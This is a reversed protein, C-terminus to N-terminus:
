KRQNGVFLQIFLERSKLPKDGLHHRLVRRMLEKAERSQGPDLDRDAALNLLTAGAVSFGSGAMRAVPGREPDYGYRGGPDLPASSDVDQDLVMAYGIQELLRLEFRRLTRAVDPQTGLARLASRYHDFLQEHPDDRVLLRTLLENVYLGCYIARGGISVEAGGDEIRGITKVEGRGSLSISLPRFPQLLAAAPSNRRRAGKAIAPFRGQDRGFLELLLSTNGYERRHLVYCDILQDRRPETTM